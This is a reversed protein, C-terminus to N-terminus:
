GAVARLSAVVGAAAALFGPPDFTPLDEPRPPQPFGCGLCPSEGPRIGMTRGEVGVCAGYVWPIGHKVAVDNLLYRTAVNDTGDLILDVPQEGATIGALSEVNQSHVDTVHPEVFPGRNVQSLRMAAALAKPWARRADHEDFLVQRQLNSWEVVDRDVLRLFGVGARVLQEAAHTGLAGCGVLLVRTRGLAAQGQPGIQPLLTQRHYRNPDM